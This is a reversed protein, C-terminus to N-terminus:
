VTKLEGELFGLVGLVVPILMMLVGASIGIWRHQLRSGVGPVIASLLLAVGMLTADIFLGLILGSATSWLLISTRM